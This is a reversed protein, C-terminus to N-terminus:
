RRARRRRELLGLSGTVLALVSGLGAPDIEPVSTSYSLVADIQTSDSVFTGNPGIGVSFDVTDGSLVLLTTQFSTAQTPGFGSVTGDFISVGNRFVHVDTTAGVAFDRGEFVSNVTVLGPSPATWRIVSNQGAIGPHFNVRGPAFVTNSIVIASSGRNSTVNLSPIAPDTTWVDLGFGDVFASTYPAFTGGATSSWGYQWVGNPNSTPSFDAAVDFVLGAHVSPQGLLLGSSLTFHHAVLCLIALLAPRERAHILGAALGPFRFVNM